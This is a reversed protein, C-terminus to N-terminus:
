TQWETNLQGYLKEDTSTPHMKWAGNKYFFLDHTNAPDGSMHWEGNKFFWFISSQQVAVVLDFYQRFWTSFFEIRSLEASGPPLWAKLKFYDAQSYPPTQNFRTASGYYGTPFSIFQFANSELTIEDSPTGTLEKEIRLKGTSPQTGFQSLSYQVDYFFSRWSGSGLGVLHALSPLGTDRPDMIYFGYLSSSPIDITYPYNDWARNPYPFGGGAVIAPSYGTLTNGEVVAQIFEGKRTVVVDLPQSGSIAVRSSIERIKQADTFGTWSNYQILVAFFSGGSKLIALGRFNRDNAGGSWAEGVCAMYSGNPAGTDWGVTAETILGFSPNFDIKKRGFSTIGFQGFNYVHQSSSATNTLVARAGDVSLGNNASLSGWQWNDKTGWGTNAAITRAFDDHFFHPYEPLGVIGVGTLLFDAPGDWQIKGIGGATFEADAENTAKQFESVVDGNAHIIVDPWQAEIISFKGGVWDQYDGARPDESLASPVSSGDGGWWVSFEDTDKTSNGLPVLIIQDILFVANEGTEQFAKIIISQGATFAGSWRPTQTYSWMPLEKLYDNPFNNSNQPENSATSLIVTSETATYVGSFTVHPGSRGGTLKYRVYVDYNQFPIENEFVYPISNWPIEITKAAAAYMNPLDADQTSGFQLWPTSQTERVATGINSTPDSVVSLGARAPGVFDAARIAIVGGPYIKVSENIAEVFQMTPTPDVTKTWSFDIIGGNSTIQIYYEQGGDVDLYYVTDSTGSILNSEFGVETLTALSSGQYVHIDQMTAASHPHVKLLYLATLPATFKYWITKDEGFNLNTEGTESTAYTTNVTESGEGTIVEANAFDDNPPPTTSGWNLVVDAGNSPDWGTSFTGVQIKYTTGAVANFIAQSTGSGGSDDDSAVEVLSGLSNGTWIALTTDGLNATSGITDFGYEGSAPCTWEYWISNNSANANSAVPEGAETTAESVDVPGVSGEAGTITQANSFNDNSPAPM